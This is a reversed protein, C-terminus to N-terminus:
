SRGALGSSEFQSLWSKSQNLHEGIDRMKQLMEDSTGDTSPSFDTTLHELQEVPKSKTNLNSYKLM